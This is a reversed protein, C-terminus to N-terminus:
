GILLLQRQRCRSLCGLYGSELYRRLNLCLEPAYSSVTAAAAPLSLRRHVYQPLDTKRQPGDPQSVDSGYM